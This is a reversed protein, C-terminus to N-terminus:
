TVGMASGAVRQTLTRWVAMGGQGRQLATNRRTLAGYLDRGAVNRDFRLARGRSRRIRGSEGQPARRLRGQVNRSPDTNATPLPQGHQIAIIAPDVGTDRRADFGNGDVAIADNLAACEDHWM